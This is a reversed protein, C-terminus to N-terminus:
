DDVWEEPLVLVGDSDRHGVFDEESFDIEVPSLKEVNEIFYAKIKQIPIEKGEPVGDWPADPKHTINRLTAASYGGYRSALDVLFSKDSDEIRTIKSEDYEKIPKRSFNKYRSYVSKIVPGHPWAEISDYFLSKSYLQLYHGQAFYLLKNLKMNTLDNCSDTMLYILFNAIDTAGYKSYMNNKEKENRDVFRVDVDLGLGDAVKVLMDITPNYDGKEMRSINPRSVGIKEALEKQTMGTSKQYAVLREIMEKKTKKQREYIDLSKYGREWILLMYSLM